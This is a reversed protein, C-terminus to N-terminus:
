VGNRGQLYIYRNLSNNIEQSEDSINEEVHPEHQTEGSIQKGAKYGFVYPEFSKDSNSLDKRPSGKCDYKWKHNDIPKKTDESGLAHASSPRTKLVVAKSLDEPPSGKARSESLIKAKASQVRNPRAKLASQLPPHPVHDFLRLRDSIDDPFIDLAEQQEITNGDFTLEKISYKPSHAHQKGSSPRNGSNANFTKAKKKHSNRDFTPLAKGKFSDNQQAGKAPGLELGLNIEQMVPIQANGHTAENSYSVQKDRIESPM